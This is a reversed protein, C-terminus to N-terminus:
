RTSSATLRQFRPNQRLSAWLPDFKVYAPSMITPRALMRELVDIAHEPQRAILYTTALPYQVKWSNVADREYPLLSAAREGMAVGQATEGAFARLTAINATEIAHAADFQAHPVLQPALTKAIAQAHATDGDLLDVDLQAYLASVSNPHTRTAEALGKRRQEDTLLWTPAASLASTGNIRESERIVRRADDLDSLAIRILVRLQTVAQSKPAIAFARDMERKAEDWRHAGALFWGLEEAFATSRPDLAQAARGDRIADDYRGTGSEAAAIGQLLDANGAADARVPGYASLAAPFDSDLYILSAALARRSEFRLPALTMARATAERTRRQRAPAFGDMSFLLADARALKAWAAVFNSDIRVAQEYHDAAMKMSALDGNTGADWLAEGRLYADYAAPQQTPIEVMRAHDRRDLAMNMADAVKMAISAQVRFMDGTTEDVSQSWVVEPAASGRLRVLEPSVKLRGSAGMAAPETQLTGTLLYDVGLESAIQQPSKTTGRYANSSARAIVRMGAVTSLKSRLEDTIGDVVYADEPRGRNEFPLVALRIVGSDGPAIPTPAVGHSLNAIRSRQSFLALAALATIVAAMVSIHSFRRRAVVPATASALAVADGLVRRDDLATLLDRASAPRENPNKALCQTVLAVLVPPLQPNAAALDRPAEAIHAAMFQQASTRGAFPHAGGLLEYAIVAWAYIDARGDVVDGSAQEPAMYAPTGIATGIQTLTGGPTQTKAMDVAKAIGFDTVVATGESILVNAPKIDRHVVGQAHAYALARAIDRLIAVSEDISLPGADMRQRLSEGRVFPMTYYPIGDGTQGAALVPVIHPEQLSAALRMERAFREASLGMALEPSLIKVVVDRGLAEEHAIYVRSMGGGGLERGLTYAAGLATALSDRLDLM